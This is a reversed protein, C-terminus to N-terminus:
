QWPLPTPVVPNAKAALQGDIDSQFNNVGDQGLMEFVWSLVEDQTLENYPIFPNEADVKFTIGTAGPLQATNIGDTGSCVFHVICVVADYGAYQPYNDMQVVSWTYTNAM